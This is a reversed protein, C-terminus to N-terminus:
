IDAYFVLCRVEISERPQAHVPAKPNPFACHACVLSQLNACDILQGVSGDCM